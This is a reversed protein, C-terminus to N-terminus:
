QKDETAAPTVVPSTGAVNYDKSVAGLAIFGMGLLINRYDVHQNTGILKLVEQGFPIFSLGIGALTTKWNRM